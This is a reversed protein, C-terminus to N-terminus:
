ISAKPLKKENLKKINKFRLYEEFVDKLGVGSFCELYSLCPKQMSVFNQM